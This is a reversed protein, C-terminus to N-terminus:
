IKRYNMVKEPGRNSAVKLSVKGEDNPILRQTLGPPDCLDLRDKSTIGECLLWTALNLKGYM